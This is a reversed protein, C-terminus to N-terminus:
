QTTNGRAMLTHPSINGGSIIDEQIILKRSHPLHALWRALAAGDTCSEIKYARLYRKFLCVAQREFAREMEKVSRQSFYLRVRGYGDHLEEGFEDLWCDVLPPIGINSPGSQPM